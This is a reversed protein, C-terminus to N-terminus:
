FFFSRISYMTRILFSFYLWAAPSRRTIRFVSVPAGCRCALFALSSLLHASPQLSGHPLRANEVRGVGQGQVRLGWFQTLVCEQQEFAGGHLMKNGGGRSVWLRDECSRGNVSARPLFLSSPTNHFFVSSSRKSFDSDLELATNEDRSCRGLRPAVSGDGEACCVGRPSRGPFLCTAPGAGAQASSFWKILVTSRPESRRDSQGQVYGFPGRSTGDVELNEEKSQAGLRWSGSISLNVRVQLYIHERFRFILLLWRSIM